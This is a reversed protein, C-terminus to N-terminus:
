QEQEPPDTFPLPDIADQCDKLLQILVPTQGEVIDSDDLRPGIEIVRKILAKLENTRMAQELREDAIKDCESRLANYEALPVYEGTANGPWDCAYSDAVGEHYRVFKIITTM